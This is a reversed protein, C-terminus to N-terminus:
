VLVLLCITAGCVNREVALAGFYYLVSELGEGCQSLWLKAASRMWAPTNARERASVSFGRRWSNSLRAVACAFARLCNSESLQEGVAKANSHCM